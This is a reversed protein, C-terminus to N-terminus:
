SSFVRYQDIQAQSDTPDNSSLQEVRKKMAASQEQARRVTDQVIELQDSKQSLLLSLQMLKSFVQDSKAKLGEFADRAEALQNSLQMAGKREHLLAPTISAIHQEM